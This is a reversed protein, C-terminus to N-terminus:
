AQELAVWLKLDSDRCWGLIRSLHCTSYYLSLRISSRIGGKLKALRLVTYCIRPTKGEWHFASFARNKKKVFTTTIYIPLTHLLYLVRTFIAIKRINCRGLLSHFYNYGSSLSRQKRTCCHIM